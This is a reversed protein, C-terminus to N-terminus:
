NLAFISVEATYIVLRLVSMSGVVAALAGLAMPLAASTSVSTSKSLQWWGASSGSSCWSALRCRSVDMVLLDAQNQTNIQAYQM